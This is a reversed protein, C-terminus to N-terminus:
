SRDGGIEGLADEARVRLDELQIQAVVALPESASKQEVRPWATVRCQPISSSREHFRTQGSGPRHACSRHGHRGRQRELHVAQDREARTTATVARRPASRRPIPDPTPSPLCSHALRDGRTMAPLFRERQSASGHRAITYATVNHVHVITGVGADAASITRDGPLLGFLRCHLQRTRGNAHGYLRASRAGQTRRRGPRRGTVDRSSDASPTLPSAARSM